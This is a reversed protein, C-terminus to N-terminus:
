AALLLRVVTAGVPGLAQAGGLGLYLRQMLDGLIPSLAALVSIGLELNGYFQLPRKSREVRKGLLVGGLGLGGLFIALVAASALTSAGFTLRFTRQWTTQYVLASFGSGFLLAAVVRMSPAM